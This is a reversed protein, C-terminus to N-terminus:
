WGDYAWLGNYFALGIAGFSTSSGEFANSLNETKGTNLFVFVYFKSKMTVDDFLLHKFTFGLHCSFGSYFHEGQAMLVIGAVVIVVIIILKAATFFNQVYSALKVSLCNIGTIVVAIFCVLFM